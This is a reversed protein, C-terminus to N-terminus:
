SMCSASPRLTLWNTLMIPSRVGEWACTSRSSVSARARMWRSTSRSCCSPSSQGSLFRMAGFSRLMHCIPVPFRRQRQKLTFAATKEFFLRWLRGPRKNAADHNYFSFLDRISPLEAARRM